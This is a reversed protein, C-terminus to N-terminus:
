PSAHVGGKQLQSAYIEQYSRCSQMLNQHTGVAEIRGDERLIIIQDATMASSIRQAVVITTPQNKLKLIGSRVKAETALDLASTADDLILVQPESILARAIALRQKQGGSFNTGKQKVPAELKEPLKSVFEWAQATKLAQIMEEKTAQPKGWRLNEAITGSFLTPAQTVMIIKRRLSDLDYDKVNIGGVLIAGHNVEYFRGLLYALTSKGSGTPGMIAATSGSNVTLSIDKLVLEQDDEHYKFDVDQFEITKDAAASCLGNKPSVIDAKLKFVENLRRISVQARFIQMVVFSLMLLSMLIQTTYTIIAMIEGVQISQNAFLEGGFWVITIMTFNLFFMMLPQTLAMIKAIKKDLNFMATNPSRFRKNEFAARDYAKVVRAGSFSEQMVINMNDTTTQYKDFLPIALRMIIAIVIILIAMAIFFVFALQQNLGMVIILSGIMMVLSVGALRLIMQLSTQLQNADSTLRTILSGTQLQDIHRFSLSQIKAYLAARLDRVFFVSASAAALVGLMAVVFVIIVNFIMQWGIDKVVALNGALIGEDVIRSMLLPQQLTIVIQAVVLGVSLIVLWWYPKLYVWINKM